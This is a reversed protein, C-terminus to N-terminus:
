RARQDTLKVGWEKATDEDIAPLYTLIEKLVPFMKFIRKIPKANEQMELGKEEMGISEFGVGFFQSMLDSFTYYSDRMLSIFPASNGIIDIGNKPSYFFAVEDILKNLQRRILTKYAKEDAPDDPDPAALGFFLLSSMFIATRIEAFSSEVGQIFKEVFEDERIFTDPNYRGLLKEQELKEKYVEKARKILDEKSMIHSLFPVLKAIAKLNLASLSRAFMRFRGYEYSHHAQDPRFEGWRVDAQRPIWNKFTMFLRWYLNYKYSAVDFEDAEGLADKSMTQVLERLSQVDVSERSIGPIDIITKDKGNEKVTKFEAFKALSYKERYEKIRDEFAKEVETREAPSLNFRNRYEENNAAADRLNVIKGDIVGTNEIVAMFVHIQVIESTKRMPSMIWDNSLITAAQNISLQSAKYGERNNLLPLFYDVLAAQKKREDSSYFNGSAVKLWANRLDEKSAYKQYLKNSAYTGGFLNSLASAMNVGLIRKQNAQNLWMVFKTASINTPKYEKQDLKMMKGVKSHAFKDFLGFTIYFDEDFQLTDGEVIARVFKELIPANLGKEPSIEPRGDPKLAIKGFTNRQITNKGREVYVLARLMEDSTQLYKEKSIEKAMLGYVAFLDFSKEKAEINQIFPVFRKQLKKGTFPDRAGQYNLEYDSVTISAKWNKYSQAIVNKSKELFSSDEISLIDAVGKRVNPFFTYLKFDDLAGVDVLEQNKEIMYNYMALLPENGPKTLNKYAESEWKEIKMGKSWVRSNHSGFATVPNKYINYNTNFQQISRKKIKTDEAKDPNYTVKKHREELEKLAENYWKKYEEMDYNETVFKLIEKSDRGKRVNERQKYFEADIKSHISGKKFDVLQGIMDKYDVNNTQMWQDLDYKLGQLRKIEKDTDLDIKGYAEKVLEYAYRTTAMAQSGINRFIKAAVNVVKEPLMLGFINKDKAKEEVLENRLKELKNNLYLLANGKNYLNALSNREINSGELELVAPEVVNKIIDQYFRILALAEGIDEQTKLSDKQALLEDFKAKLDTFYKALQTANETVRLEYIAETIDNLITRDDKFAGKNIYDQYLAQLKRILEDKEESGTTEEPSIIPRLYREDQKIKKADVNGIELPTKADLIREETGKRKVYHKKIPIARVKGFKQVGYQDKLIRKYENIQLFIGEKKWDKAGEIDELLMTKWDLIDVTGDPKIAIFDVTGYMGKEKDFIVQETLFRTGEDYSAMLNNVFSSIISISRGTLPNDPLPFNLTGQNKRRLGTQPDIWSNVSEELIEHVYSGDQRSQEYFDELAEDFNRNRFIQENYETQLDSVRKPQERRIQRIMADPEASRLTINLSEAVAKLEGATMAKLEKVGYNVRIGDKYYASDTKVVNEDEPRNRINDWLQRTDPNEEDIEKLSKASFFIDNDTIDAFEGFSTEDENMAKLAEQFPNKYLGFVEQIWRVIQRWFDYARDIKARSEQTNELNNILQEALLKGVAEEKIKAYDPTGDETLYHKNQSYEPSNLVESYLKYNVIEKMMREYLEPRSQKILKVLIHMSEEPLTYDELGEKIQMVGNMFDIYANDQIPQGKYILKNLTQVNRFGIKELFKLIKQKTITGAKSSRVGENTQENIENNPDVTGLTVKGDVIQIWDIKKQAIIVKLAKEDEPTPISYYEVGSSVVPSTGIIGLSQLDEFETQQENSLTPINDPVQKPYMKIAMASVEEGYAKIARERSGPDHLQAAMEKMVGEPNQKFAERWLETPITDALDTNQIGRNFFVNQTDSALIKNIDFTDDSLLLGDLFKILNSIPEALPKDETITEELKYHKKGLRSNVWDIMQKILSRFYELFGKTTVEQIVPAEEKKAPTQIEFVDKFLQEVEAANATFFDDLVKIHSKSMDYGVSKAMLWAYFDATIEKTYTTNYGRSELGKEIYEEFGPIYRLNGLFNNIKNVIDPKTTHLYFDLAHGLEHGAVVTYDVPFKTIDDLKGMTVNTFTTNLTKSELRTLFTVLDTLGKNQRVSYETIKDVANQHYSYFVNKFPTLKGDFLIQDQKEIFRWKGVAKRFDEYKIVKKSKRQRIYTEIGKRLDDNLKTLQEQNIVNDDLMNRLAVNTAMAPVLNRLAGLGNTTIVKNKNRESDGGQFFATSSDVFEISLLRLFSAPLYNLLKWIGQTTNEDYNDQVVSMLNNRLEDEDMTEISERYEEKIRDIIEDINVLSKIKELSEDTMNNLEEYTIDGGLDNILKVMFDKVNFLYYNAARAGSIGKTKFLHKRIEQEQEPIYVIDKNFSDLYAPLETDNVLSVAVRVRGYIRPLLVEEDRVLHKLDIYLYTKGRVKKLYVDRELSGSLKFGKSSQGPIATKHKAGYSKLRAQADQNLVYYYGYKGKTIGVSKLIDSKGEFSKSPLITYYEESVPTNVIGLKGQYIYRQGDFIALGKKKISEWLGKSGDNMRADIVDSRLQLGNQLAWQGLQEYVRGGIGQRQETLDVDYVNLYQGDNFMSVKGVLQGGVYIKNENYNEGDESQIDVTVPLYRNILRNSPQSILFSENFTDAPMVMDEGYSQNIEAILDLYADGKSKPVYTDEVKDFLGSSELKDEINKNIGRAVTERNIECSAM